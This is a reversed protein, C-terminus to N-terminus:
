NIGVISMSGALIVLVSLIVSHIFGVSRMASSVQINADECYLGSYSVKPGTNCVCGSANQSCTGRYSYVNITKKPM